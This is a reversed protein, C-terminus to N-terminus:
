GPGLIASIPDFVCKVKKVVTSGTTTYQIQGNITWVKETRPDEQLDKLLKHTPPTLDEVVIFRRIGAEKEADTPTPMSRRNRLIAIKLPKSTLRVVVPPPPKSPDPEQQYFVRYCAEITNQAQPVSGLHGASKAVALLPRLIKDYVRTSLSKYNDLSEGPVYPINFVRITCARAQQERQNFSSKLTIIQKDTDAKYDDMQKKINAIEETHVNVTVKIRDLKAGFDDIKSELTDLKKLKELILDLKQKDSAM